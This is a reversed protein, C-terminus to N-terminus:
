RGDTAGGESEALPTLTIGGVRVWQGGQSDYLFSQKTGCRRCLRNGHIPSMSFPTGDWGYRKGGQWDHRRWWPCTRRTM